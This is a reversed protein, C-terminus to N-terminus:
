EPGRHRDRRQRVRERTPENRGPSRQRNINVKGRHIKELHETIMIAEGSVKAAIKTGGWLPHVMTYQGEHTETVATAGWKGAIEAALSDLLEAATAETGPRLQAKVSWSGPQQHWTVATVGAAQSLLGSDGNESEGLANQIATALEATTPSTREIREIIEPWSTRHTTALWVGGGTNASALNAGTEKM